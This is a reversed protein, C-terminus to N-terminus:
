VRKDTAVFSSQGQLVHNALECVKGGQEIEKTMKFKKYPELSM